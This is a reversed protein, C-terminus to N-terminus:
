HAYITVFGAGPIMAKLRGDTAVVADHSESHGNASTTWLVAYRGPALGAVSFSGGRRTRLIVVQSGNTNRFAVPSIEQDTTAAGIRQAGERVFAFYHRLLRAENTFVVQPAQGRKLAIQFYVGEADPNVRQSCYALAFREWSGVHGLTLDDHLEEATGGMHELMAMGLHDRRARLRLQHLSARSVGSYRHYVLTRVYDNVRPVRHLRDYFRVAAGLNTTSPALFQPRFGAAALRDGAAVIAAGVQEPTWPTNDPELITEIADPVFGFVRQMHDFTVALLEAYERPDRMQEFPTSQFFDVYTLNVFLHEGRKALRDRLPLITSTVNYDFWDFQFGAPNAVSPDDNDNVPSFWPTGFSVARSQAENGGPNRLHPAEMGSRVELRLRNIGLTDVARDFLENQYRVFNAPNCDLEGSQHHAEWGEMRQFEQQPFIHVLTTGQEAADVSIPITDRADEVSLEIRSSGVAKAYVRGRDDVTAVAPNLSVFSIRRDTLPVATSDYATANLTAHARPALVLSETAHDIFAVRSAAARAAQRAVDPAIESDPYRCGACWM